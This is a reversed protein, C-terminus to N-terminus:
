FHEIKGASANLVLARCGLRLFSPDTKTLPVLTSIAQYASSLFFIHKKRRSIPLDGTLSNGIFVDGNYVM